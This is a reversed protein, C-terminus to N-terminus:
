SLKLESKFFGKQTGILSPAHTLNPFYGLRVTTIEPAESPAADPTSACGAVLLISAGGLVAGLQLLTKM